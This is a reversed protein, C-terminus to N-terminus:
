NHHSRSLDHNVEKSDYINTRQRIFSSPLLSRDGRSVLVYGRTQGSDSDTTVMAQWLEVAKVWVPPYKYRSVDLILFRDSCRDYAAIPSIHGGREQGIAKRLYNVLVFNNPIQLNAIVQQRFQTLSSDAAHYVKVQVSYSSLLQGLQSLTMGQHSVVKPSLVNRTQEQNFFNEQTFVRHPAYKADTPAPTSLANLVMVMSAVGCYAQNEQTVFQISLPWYDARAKSSLLLREGEPSNLNILNAPITLTQALGSGSTFWIGVVLMRIPIRITVM